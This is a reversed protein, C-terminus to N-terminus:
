YFKNSTNNINPNPFAYDIIRSVWNNIETEYCQDFM